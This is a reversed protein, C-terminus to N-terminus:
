PAAKRLSVEGSHFIRRTGDDLDVTLAGEETLGVATGSVVSGDALHMDVAQGPTVAGERWAELIGARDGSWLQKVLTELHKLIAVWVDRRSFDKGTSSTLSCAVERFEEPFSDPDTSVNIGMGLIAYDIGELSVSMECLIGCVKRGHILVDNPWKIGVGEVGMEGLARYVATAALLPILTGQGPPVPPRLLVSFLLSDGPEGIWSRGRRGRGQHQREALVVTGEPAGEEARVRLVDNTSGTEPLLEFPHQYMTSSALLGKLDAATLDSPEALLRYGKRPSSEIDYGLDTLKRIRKSIAARSVEERARLFESTVWDPQAERLAALLQSQTEEAM